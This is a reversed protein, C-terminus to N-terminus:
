TIWKFYISLPMLAFLICIFISFARGSLKIFPGYKNHAFGLSQFATAFGHLLHWYLSLIGLLYLVIEIPNSFKNLMMEYLPLEEGYLLQNTRNPIWFNSTHLVLFILILTGLLTMSRSYWTVQPTHTVVAYKIPRAARNSRWLLLSQVIHVVFGLILVIELTRILPNTGMFHAADNFAAGGDNYFILANIGAHVVLFSILFLGTLAMTFKKGISSTFTKFFWNM